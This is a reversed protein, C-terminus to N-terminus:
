IIIDKFTLDMQFIYTHKLIGTNFKKMLFNLTKYFKFKLESRKRNFSYWPYEM